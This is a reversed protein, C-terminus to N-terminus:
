EGDMVIMEGKREKRGDSTEGTALRSINGEEGRMKGSGRDRVREKVRGHRKM